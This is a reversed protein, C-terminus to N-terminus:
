PEREGRLVEARLRTWALAQELDTPLSWQSPPEQASGPGIEEGQPLHTDGASAVGYEQLLSAVPSAYTVGGKHVQLLQKEGRDLSDARAAVFVKAPCIGLSSSFM